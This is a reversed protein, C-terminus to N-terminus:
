EGRRQFYRGIRYGAYFTLVTQIIRQLIGLLLVVFMSYMPFPEDLIITETLFTFDALLVLKSLIVCGSVMVIVNITEKSTIEIETKGIKM